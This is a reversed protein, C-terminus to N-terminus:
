AQKGGVETHAFKPSPFALM